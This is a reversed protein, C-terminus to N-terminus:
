VYDLRKKIRIIGIMGFLVTLALLVSLSEGIPLFHEAGLIISRLMETAYTYPSLLMLYAYNQSISCAVKYSFSFGGLFWLPFLLRTMISDCRDTSPVCGVLFLTFAAFFLNIPVLALIFWILSFFTIPLLSGMILKLIPLMLICLFMGNITYLTMLRMFIIWSPVPLTLEYCIYKDHEFDSVMRFVQGFIEAGNAGVVLGVAQLSIFFTSTGFAPMIYVNVFCVVTGWVVIDISKDVINQRWLKLDTQLLRLFTNM